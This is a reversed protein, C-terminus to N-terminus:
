LVDLSIGHPLIELVRDKATFKPIIDGLVQFQFDVNQHTLEVGKPEGTTGSTYVISTTDSLQLKQRRTELEKAIKADQLHKKGTAIFSDLTVVKSNTKPAKGNDLLIYQKVSPKYKSKVSEKEIATIVKANGVFVIKAGSHGLIYCLDAPTSDTGRPVDVCCALQISMTSFTWEKSVDAIVAIHSSIKGGAAVLSAAMAFIIDKIEAYSIDKFTNGDRWKIVTEDSYTDFTQYIRNCLHMLSQTNYQPKM